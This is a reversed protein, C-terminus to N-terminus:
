NKILAQIEPDIAAHRIAIQQALKRRMWECLFNSHCQDAVM